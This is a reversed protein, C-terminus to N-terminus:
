SPLESRLRETVNSSSGTLLAVGAVAVAAPPPDPAESSAPSPAPTPPPRSPADRAPAPYPGPPPLPAAPAPSSSSPRPAEDLSPCEVPGDASATGEADDSVLSGEDGPTARAGVGIRWRLSDGYADVSARASVNAFSMSSPAAAAIAASRLLRKSASTSASVSRARKETASSSSSLSMRFCASSALRASTACAEASLSSLARRSRSAKSFSSSVRLASSSLRSSQHRVWCSVSTRLPSRLLSCICSVAVAVCESTVRSECSFSSDRDATVLRSDRQTCAVDSIERWRESSASRRSRSARSSVACWFVRM